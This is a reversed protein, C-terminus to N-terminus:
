GRRKADLPTNPHAVLMSRLQPNRRVLGQKSLYGLLAGPCSAFKLLNRVFIISTYSRSCLITVTRGDLTSAPSRPWCAERRASILAAREEAPATAFRARILDRAVARASEAVGPDVWVDVVANMGKPTLIRTALEAPLQANRLLLWEVQVDELLDRTSALLVLGDPHPHNLAIVRAHSRVLEPNM